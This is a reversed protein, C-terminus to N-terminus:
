EAASLYQSKVYGEEDNQDICRIQVWEQSPDGLVEVTEGENVQTLVSSDTNSESRVNISSGNVVMIMTEPEAPAEEEPEEEAPSEEEEPTEEGASPEEEETDDPGDGKIILSADGEEEQETQTQEGDDGRNLLKMAGFGVLAVIVLALVIGLIVMKRGDDELDWDYRDDEYDEEDEDEDDEDYIDDDDEDEDEPEAVVPAQKKKPKVESLDVDAVFYEFSDEKKPAPEAPIGAAAAAEKYLQDAWVATGMGLIKRSAGLLLTQWSGLYAERNEPQGKTLSPLVKQLKQLEENVKDEGLGFVASIEGATFQDMCSMVLMIRHLLPLAGPIEALTRVGGAYPADKEQEALLVHYQKRLKQYYRQWLWRELDGADEAQDLTVFLESFFEKMFGKAREEKQLILLSRCYVESCAADFIKRYGQREGRKLDELASKMELIM